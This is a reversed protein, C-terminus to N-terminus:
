ILRQFPLLPILLDISKQYHCIERMAIIAYSWHPKVTKMGTGDGGSKHAAKTALKKRPTKGMPKMKQLKPIINKAAKAAKTARAMRQKAKDRKKRETKLREEREENTETRKTRAMDSDSNDNGNLKINKVGKGKGTVMPTKHKCPIFTPSDPIINELKIELDPIKTHPKQQAM